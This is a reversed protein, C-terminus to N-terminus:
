SPCAAGGGGANPQVTLFRWDHARWPRAPDGTFRLRAWLVRRGGQPLDIAARLDAQDGPSIVRIVAGDAAPGVGSTDLPGPWRGLTTWRRLCDEEAGSLRAAAAVDALSAFVAGPAARGETVVAVLRERLGEDLGQVALGQEIAAPEDGNLDYKGQPASVEVSVTRGNIALNLGPHKALPQAPGSLLADAQAAVASELSVRQDLDREARAAAKRYQGAAVVVGAAVTAVAFVTAMAFPLFYGRSVYRRRRGAM